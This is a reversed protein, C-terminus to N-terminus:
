LVTFTAVYQGNDLEEHEKYSVRIGLTSNLIQKVSIFHHFDVDKVVFEKPIVVTKLDEAKYENQM